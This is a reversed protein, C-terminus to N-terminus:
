TGVGRFPWRIAQTHKVIKHLQPKFDPLQPGVM